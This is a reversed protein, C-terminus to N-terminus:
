NVIARGLVRLRAPDDWSVAADQQLSGIRSEVIRDDTEALARNALRGVQTTAHALHNDLLPDLIGRQRPTAAESRHSEGIREVTALTEPLAALREEPGLSAFGTTPDHLVARLAGMARTEIGGAVLEDARVADPGEPSGFYEAPIGFAGTIPAAANEPIQEQFSM